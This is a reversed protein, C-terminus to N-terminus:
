EIGKMVVAEIKKMMQEMQRDFEKIAGQALTDMAPQRLRRPKKIKDQVTVLAKQLAEELEYDSLNHKLKVPKM